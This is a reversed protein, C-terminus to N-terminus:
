MILNANWANAFAYLADYTITKGEKVPYKYIAGFLRGREYSWQDNLDPYADYSFPKGQLADKHGKIFAATRMVSRLTCTKTTVQQIAAM